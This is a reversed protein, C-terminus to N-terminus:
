TSAESNIKWAAIALLTWSIILSSGGIPAIMGLWKPGGLANIYISGCFLAIGILMLIGTVRLLKMPFQNHLLCIAVIGLGHILQYQVAIEWSRLKAESLVKTAGHAGWAGLAAGEALALGAIILLVKITSHM